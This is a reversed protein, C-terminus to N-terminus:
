SLGNHADSSPNVKCAALAFGGRPPSARAPEVGLTALSQQSIDQARRDRLFSHFLAGVAKHADRQLLGVGVPRDCNVHIWQPGLGPKASSAAALGHRERM